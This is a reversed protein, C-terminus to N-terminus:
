LRRPKALLGGVFAIACGAFVVFVGTSPRGTNPQLAVAVMFATLGLAAILTALRTLRGSSGTLGLLALAALAIIVAGASAIPDIANPLDIFSVDPAVTDSAVDITPLDWELGTINPSVRAGLDGPVDISAGANWVLLSGVIMMAAGLLTLLVRWTPRWDTSEQVLSGGAEVDRAGDSAVVTFPRTLQEGGDPRPASVRVTVGAAQGPALDVVPPDFTLRVVREPDYGSFQVRRPRAGGRNDAVATLSGGGSNRVRVVSPDLRLTMPEDPPPPSTTQIFTGDAQVEQLAGHVATDTASVSFQRTVDRGPEPPYADLQAQARAIQGREVDVVPPWFQFRVAREPDTGTLTVRRPRIGRRNDIVVQFVATTTDRVRILSPELKLAVPTEVPAPSTYQVFTGAAEIEKGGDAAIVTVQRTTEQGPEPLPGEMRVRARGLEGPLVDLSPPSFSFRVLREPDRGSLFVRRVRNGGRNDLVAELQGVITDRVRVVSPDLRVAVPVDVPAASTSQVFTAAVELDPMGDSGALLTLSRSVEQGAAPPPAEVRVRARGVEGALVDISPPSFSFHVLREPDRGGLFVRRVRTGGRNDVTLDLQGTAADRVRLLSPEVRLVMPVATSATHMLTVPVEVTETGEAAMVTLQRTATSGADPPPSEVRVAVQTSGGAPVVVTGPSFLFRVVSEPDRGTLAVTRSQNGGRNDITLQFRGADADKIRVISPEVRLLLPSRIGLVTLDVPHDVVIEPHAVSQVRVALPVQGAPALTGAAIRVTLRAREAGNPLLRVEATSSTLWDPGSGVSILYADVIDSLNYVAADIAADDGGPALEIAVPEVLVRIRDAVVPEDATSRGPRTAPTAAPVAPTAAPVAPSGAPVAPSGTAAPRGGSPLDEAPGTASSRTGSSAPAFAATPAPEVPAAAAGSGVEVGQATSMPALGTSGGAAGVDAAGADAGAMAQLDTEQTDYWPLFAQCEVCFQAGPENRTGCQECINDDM